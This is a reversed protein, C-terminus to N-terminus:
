VFVGVNVGEGDMVGDGMGGEGEGVGIGSLWMDNCNLKKVTIIM